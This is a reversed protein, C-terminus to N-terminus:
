LQSHLVACPRIMLIAGRFSGLSRPDHCTSRILNLRGRFRPKSLNYAPVQFLERAFVSWLLETSLLVVAHCGTSIKLRIARAFPTLEIITAICNSPDWASHSCYYPFKWSMELTGDGPKCSRKGAHWHVRKKKKRKNADDNHM